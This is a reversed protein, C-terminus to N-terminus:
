IYQGRVRKHARATSEAWTRRPDYLNDMRRHVDQMLLKASKRLGRGRRYFFTAGSATDYIGSPEVRPEAFADHQYRNNDHLNKDEWEHQANLHAHDATHTPSDPYRNVQTVRRYDSLEVPTVTTTGHLSEGHRHAMYATRPPRVWVTTNQQHTSEKLSSSKKAKTIVGRQLLTSNLLKVADVAPSPPMGIISRHEDGSTIGSHATTDFSGRWPKSVGIMSRYLGWAHRRKARADILTMGDIHSTPDAASAVGIEREKGSRLINRAAVFCMKPLNKYVSYYAHQERNFHPMNKPEVSKIESRPFSEPSSGLSAVAGLSDSGCHLVIAELITKPLTPTDVANKDDDANRIDNNRRAGAGAGSRYSNSKNDRPLYAKKLLFLAADCMREISTCRQQQQITQHHSPTNISKNGSDLSTPTPVAAAADVSACHLLADAVLCAALPSFYTLIEDNDYNDESGDVLRLERQADNGESGGSSGVDSINSSLSSCQRRGVILQSPQRRFVDLLMFFVCVCHKHRHHFSEDNVNSQKISLLSTFLLTLTDERKLVERAMAPTILWATNHLSSATAPFPSGDAAKAAGHAANPGSATGAARQLLPRAVRAVVAEGESRGGLSNLLRHVVEALQTSSLGDRPVTNGITDTLGSAADAQICDLSSGNGHSTIVAMILRDWCWLAIRYDGLGSDYYGSRLTRGDETGDSSEFYAGRLCMAVLIGICRSLILGMDENEDDHDEAATHIATITAAREKMTADAQIGILPLITYTSTANGDGGSQRRPFDHYYRLYPIGAILFAAHVIARLCDRRHCIHSDHQVRVIAGSSDTEAQLLSQLMDVDNDPCIVSSVLSHLFPSSSDIGKTDGKSESVTQDMRVWAWLRAYYERTIRCVCRWDGQAAATFLLCNVVISGIEDNVGGAELAVPNGAAHISQLIGFYNRSVEVAGAENMFQLHHFEDTLSSRPLQASSMATSVSLQGIRCYGEILAKYIPLLMGPHLPLPTVGAGKLQASLGNRHNCQNRNYRQRQSVLAMLMMHTTSTSVSSENRATDTITSSNEKKRQMQLREKLYRNAAEDKDGKDGGSDNGVALHQAQHECHTSSNVHYQDGSSYRTRYHHNAYEDCYDQVLRLVYAVGADYTGTTTSGAGRNPVYSSLFPLTSSSSQRFMSYYAQLMGQGERMELLSRTRPQLYTLLLLTRARSISLAGFKTKRGDERAQVHLINQFNSRLPQEQSARGAQGVRGRMICRLVAHFHRPLIGCKYYCHGLWTDKADSEVVKRLLEREERKVRHFNTAPHTTDTDADNRPSPIEAIVVASSFTQAHAYLSKNRLNQEHRSPSKHKQTLSMSSVGTQTISYYRKASATCSTYHEQMIQLAVDWYGDALTTSLKHDLVRSLRGDQGCENRQTFAFSPKRPAEAATTSSAPHNTDAETSDISVGSTFLQPARPVSIMGGMLHRHNRFLTAYSAM